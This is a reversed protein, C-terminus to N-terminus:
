SGSNPCLISKDPNISNDDDYLAVKDVAKPAHGRSVDRGAILEQVTPFYTDDEDKNGKNGGRCIKTLSEVQMLIRYRYIYHTATGEVIIKL